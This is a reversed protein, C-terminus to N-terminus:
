FGGPLSPRVQSLTLETNKSKSESVYGRLRNGAIGTAVLEVPRPRNTLKIWVPQQLKVHQKYLKSGGAVLYLDFSKRKPDVKRVSVSLPGVRRLQRSATLDFEYYTRLGRKQLQVLEAHNRAIPPAPRGAQLAPGTRSAAGSTGVRRWRRAPAPRAVAPDRSAAQRTANVGDLKRLLAQIDEQTQNLKASMEKRSADLERLHRQEYASNFATVCLLLVALAPLGHKLIAFEYWSRQRAEDVPVPAPSEAVPPAEPAANNRDRMYEAFQMRAEVYNEFANWRERAAMEYPLNGDLAPLDGAPHPNISELAASANRYERYAAQMALWLEHNSRGPVEPTERELM